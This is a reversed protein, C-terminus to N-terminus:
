DTDGAGGLVISACLLCEIFYQCLFSDVNFFLTFVFGMLAMKHFAKGHHM